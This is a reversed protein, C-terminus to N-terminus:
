GAYPKIEVRDMGAANKLKPFQGSFDWIGTDYMNM